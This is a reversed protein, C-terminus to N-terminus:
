REYESVSITVDQARQGVVGPAGDDRAQGFPRPRDTLEGVLQRDASGSNGLM